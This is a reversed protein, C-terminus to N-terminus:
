ICVFTDDKVFNNDIDNDGQEGARKKEKKM